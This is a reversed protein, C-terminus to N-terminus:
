SSRHWQNALWSGLSTLFSKEHVAYVINLQWKSVPYDIFSKNIYLDGFSM